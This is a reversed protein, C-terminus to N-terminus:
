QESLYEISYIDTRRDRLYPIELRSKAQLNFDVECFALDEDDYSAVKLSQGRAGILQSGGFFNLDKEKGWRNVAVLHIGNELARSACNISWIDKNEKHWVAPLFLIDAGQLTLIRALEPFGADHCIMLGIRCKPTDFIPINKGATFWSREHNVLHTKQFTGIWSENNPTWIGASNFIKGLIKGREIFGCIITLNLHTSLKSLLQDTEEGKSESLSWLETGLLEPSYGTTALEPFCIIDTNKSAAEKCLKAIKLLNSEKDGLITDIQALAIQLM